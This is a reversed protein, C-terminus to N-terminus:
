TTELGVFRFYNWVAVMEAIFIIPSRLAISRIRINKRLLPLLAITIRAQEASFIDGGRNRVHVDELTVRLGPFFAIGLRGGIRVTMGLADSAAAALRPQDADVDVLVRATVVVLVFLGLLGGVVFLSHKPLKSM